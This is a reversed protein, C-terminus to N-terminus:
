SATFNRIITLGLRQSKEPHFQTAAIHKEGIMAVVAGGYDVEAITHSAAFPVVHYSHVFYAYDKETIGALLPHQPAVINLRNWGMHPIPLQPNSPALKRVHGKFWGLGKHNGFEESTEMLMQMGVCIGLFPTQGELVHTNLFDIVGDCARLGQMCHAFAGVGPLVIHSAKKLDKATKAISLKATPNTENLVYAFAKHVSHLNGAGCDIIAIHTM